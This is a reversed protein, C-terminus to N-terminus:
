GFASANALRMRPSSSRAPMSTFGNDIGHRLYANFRLGRSDHRADRVAFALVDSAVLRNEKDLDHLHLDRYRRRDLALDDLKKHGLAIGNRFSLSDRNNFRRSADPTVAVHSRAGGSR